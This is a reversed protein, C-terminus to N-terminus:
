AEEPLSVEVLNDEFLIVKVRIKSPVRTKSRAWLTENLKPDIWIQESDPIHREIFSRIKRTAWDARKTSPITRAGALSITYMFEEEAM